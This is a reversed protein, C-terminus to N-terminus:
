RWGSKILSFPLVLFGLGMHRYSIYLQQICLCRIVQVGRAYAECINLWLVTGACMRCGQGHELREIQRYEHLTLLESPAKPGLMM